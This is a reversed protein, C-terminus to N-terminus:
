KINKEINELNKEYSKRAYERARNRRVEVQAAREQAHRQRREAITPLVGAKTNVTVAPAVQSMASPEFIQKANPVTDYIDQRSTPNLIKRALDPDDKGKIM